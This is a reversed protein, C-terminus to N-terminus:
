LQELPLFLFVPQRFRNMVVKEHKNGSKRSMFRGHRSNKGKSGSKRNGSTSMAVMKGKAEQSEAEHFTWPSWKERQKRVKPNM